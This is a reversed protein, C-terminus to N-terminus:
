QAKAGGPPRRRQAAQADRWAAKLGCQPCYRRRRPNPRRKPVYPAGCGSCIALGGTRSVAMLLQVALAGFLSTGQLLPMNPLWEAQSERNFWSVRAGLTVLAPGTGGWSFLPLVHGLELWGNVAVSIDFCQRSVLDEDREDGAYRLGAQKWAAMGLRSQELPLPQPGSATREEGGKGETAEGM